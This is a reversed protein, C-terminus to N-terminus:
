APEPRVFVPTANTRATVNFATHCTPRYPSSSLATQPSLTQRSPWGAGCKTAIESEAVTTKAQRQHRHLVLIQM